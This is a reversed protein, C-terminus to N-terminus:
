RPRGNFLNMYECRPAGECVLWYRLRFLTLLSRGAILRLPRGCLPCRASENATEAPV